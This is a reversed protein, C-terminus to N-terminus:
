GYGPKTNAIIYVTEINVLSDLDLRHANLRTGDSEYPTRASLVILFGLEGVVSFDTTYNCICNLFSRICLRPQCTRVAFLLDRWYHRGTDRSWRLVQKLYTVDHNVTTVIAGDPQNLFVTDWGRRVIWSTIFSDDGTKILHKGRWYDNLFAEYFENNKLIATRYAVTRGSLNLVQGKNFYAVTSHLINRRVLNLAGFSEWLTFRTSRPRVTQATNVGGVFPNQFASILYRLTQPSWRSDDDVLVILKTTTNQIGKTLQKRIDPKTVTFLLIREDGLKSIVDTIRSVAADVTVIIIAKPKVILWTAVTDLYDDEEGLTASIITVDEHPTLLQNSSIPIRLGLYGIYQFLDM